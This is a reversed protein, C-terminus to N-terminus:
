LYPDSSGSRLSKKDESLTDGLDSCKRAPNTYGLDQFIRVSTCHLCFHFQNRSIFDFFDEEDDLLDSKNNSQNGAQDM